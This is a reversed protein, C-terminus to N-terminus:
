FVGQSLPEIVVDLGSILLLAATSNARLCNMFTRGRPGEEDLRGYGPHRAILPRPYHLDDRARSAGSCIQSSRRARRAGYRKSFHHSAVAEGRRWSAAGSGRYSVYRWSCLLVAM